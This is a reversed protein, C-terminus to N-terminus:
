DTIKKGSEKFYGNREIESEFSINKHHDEQNKIYARVREVDNVGISEAYYEDQWEFPEATLGDQNIWRSSEGKLLQVAKSLPMTSPLMFLCHIHDYYGNVFDMQIGNALGQKRIHQFVTQRIASVLLPMRGKTSFVLHIWNRVFSM